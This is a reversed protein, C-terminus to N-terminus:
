GLVGTARGTSGGSATCAQACAGSRRYTWTMASRRAYGLSRDSARQSNISGTSVAGPPGLTTPLCQVDALRGLVIQVLDHVGDQVHVAGPHLSAVQRM